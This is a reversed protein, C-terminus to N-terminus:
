TGAGGAQSEEHEAIYREARELLALLAEDRRRFPHRPFRGHAVDWFVLAVVDPKAFVFAGIGIKVWRPVNWITALFAQM